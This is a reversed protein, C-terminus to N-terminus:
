CVTSITRCSFPSAAHSGIFFQTLLSKRFCDGQHNFRFRVTFDSALALGALKVLNVHAFVRFREFRSFHQGLEQEGEWKQRALRAIENKVVEVSNKVMVNLYMTRDTHTMTHTSEGNARKKKTYEDTMGRTHDGQKMLQYADLLKNQVKGMVHESESRYKNTPNQKRLLARESLEDYYAKDAALLALEREAKKETETLIIPEARECVNVLAEDALVVYDDTMLLAHEKFAFSSNFVKEQFRVESQSRGRAPPVFSEFEAIPSLAAPKRDDENKEDFKEDFTFFQTASQMREPRGTHRSHDGHESPPLAAVKSRFFSASDASGSRSRSGVGFWGGGRASEFKSLGFTSRRLVDEAVHAPSQLFALNPNNEGVWGLNMILQHLEFDEHREAAHINSFVEGCIGCMFAEQDVHDEEYDAMLKWKKKKSKKNAAKPKSSSETTIAETITTVDFESDLDFDQQHHELPESEGRRRGRRVARESAAERPPLYDNNNSGTSSVFSAVSMADDHLKPLTLYPEIQPGCCSKFVRESVILSARRAQEAKEPDGLQRLTRRRVRDQYREESSTFM